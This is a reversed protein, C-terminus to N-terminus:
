SQAKTTSSENKQQILPRKRLIRQRM